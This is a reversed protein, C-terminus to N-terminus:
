KPWALHRPVGRTEGTTLWTKQGLGRLNFFLADVSCSPTFPSWPGTRGNKPRTSSLILGEFGGIDKTRKASRSAIALDFECQWDRPVDSDIPGVKSAVEERSYDNRHNVSDNEPTQYRDYGLSGTMEAGMATEVCTIEGELVKRALEDRNILM